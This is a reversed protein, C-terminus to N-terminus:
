PLKRKGSMELVELKYLLAKEFVAENYGPTGEYGYKRMIADMALRKEDPREIFIIEGLGMLSEYEASWACPAAGKILTMSCDCQFCVKPNTKMIDVKRGERASHFYLTIKDGLVDFGFNLPVIYPQGGDLLGLRVIDCRELIGLQENIDSVERDKRRMQTVERQGTNATRGEGVYPQYFGLIAYWTM